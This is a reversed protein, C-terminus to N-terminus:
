GCRRNNNNNNNNGVQPGIFVMCAVAWVNEGWAWNRVTRLTRYHRKHETKVRTKPRPLVM